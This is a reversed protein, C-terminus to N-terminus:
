SQAPFHGPRWWSTACIEYEAQTGTVWHIRAPQSLEAMKEVWRILHANSTPPAPAQTTTM